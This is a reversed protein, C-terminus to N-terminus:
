PRRQGDGRDHVRVRRRAPAGRRRRLGPRRPDRGRRAGGSRSRGAHPRRTRGKGCRVSFCRPPRPFSRTASGATPWSAPSACTTRVWRPSTSRARPRTAGPPAVCRRQETRCRFRTSRVRTSSGCRRPQRHPRDRHNGADDAGAQPVPRRALGGDGPAGVHRCGPPIQRRSLEQLSFASTALLAPSRSGLSCWLPESSSRRRDQAALYALGTLADYGWVEPVWLSDVGIREAAVAFEAAGPLRPEIM